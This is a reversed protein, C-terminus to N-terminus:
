GRSLTSVIKIVDGNQLKHDGGIRQKTKCDIAHLFGKAIDQHILLALDKATSNEPLLKADPLVEGDKNTLKTEDEVPYVVIFKLTDFVATNLIKQIGTSPIKSFVDKVLDLAKQQPPSIEKGEVISFSKEGPSYKIIGAKSAKRLLLETEASCPVVDSDSIKNIIELDQCLDAKNAAIIIPKTNKRLKKVFTEIETTSWEKPNKSILNEQQLVEQVQYDKIGLGTFRKTIAETLKARKQDIERTIKDWERKLINVFWQDFENQVFEVDELPNHSGIPVPQGQIDTTGAIDVVHILVEAQRADDLFQNGLGKGEHAGPVLGAVDILKVPIFRVGVNCFQNEHSIKFHKCACDAKVYAVGINPEITTFPFNGTPVPTETAASFFTSKGVNAKGLLGIQM